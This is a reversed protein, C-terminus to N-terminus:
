ALLRGLPLTAPCAQGGTWELPGVWALGPFATICICIASNCLFICTNPLIAGLPMFHDGTLLTWEARQGPLPAEGANMWTILEPPLFEYFSM